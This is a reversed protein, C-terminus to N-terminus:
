VYFEVTLTRFAPDTAAFNVAASGYVLYSANVSLYPQAQLPNFGGGGSRQILVGSDNIFYASAWKVPRSTPVIGKWPGPFDWIMQVNVSTYPGYDDYTPTVCSGDFGERLVAGDPVVTASPDIVLRYSGAACGDATFTATVKYVLTGVAGGAPGPEGQPGAPGAPGAVGPEGQPGAPGALGPAGAAGAPGQPGEVNWTVKRETRTNCVTIASVMRVAGTRQTVCAYLPESTGVALSVGGILAATAVASAAAAVLARM